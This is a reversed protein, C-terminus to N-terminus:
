GKSLKLFLYNSKAKAWFSSKKGGSLCALTLNKCLALCQRLREEKHIKNNYKAADENNSYSGDLVEKIRSFNQRKIHNLKKEVSVYDIILDEAKKEYVDEISSFVNNGIGLM